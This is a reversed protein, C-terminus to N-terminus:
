TDNSKNLLSHKLTENQVRLWEVVDAYKTQVDSLRDCQLLAAKYEEVRQPDMTSQPTEEKSRTTVRLTM